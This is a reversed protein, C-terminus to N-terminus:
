RERFYARLYVLPVGVVVLCPVNAIAINFWAGHLASLGSDVVFWVLVAGVVARYAWAERRPFAHYVIMNVVVFFAATTAGAPILAFAFARKAPDPLVEIGFLWRAMYGEYFGFPDFSGLVAWGIALVAFVATIVLLVRRWRDFADSTTV